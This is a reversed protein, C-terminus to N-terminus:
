AISFTPTSLTGPPACVVSARTRWIMSKPAVTTAEVGVYASRSAWSADVAQADVQRARRHRPQDEGSLGRARDRLRLRQDLLLPPRLREVGGPHGLDPRDHHELAGLLGAAGVDDLVVHDLLHEIRHRELGHGVALRPSRTTVENPRPRSGAAGSGSPRDPTGRAPRSTSTRARIQCRRPRCGRDRRRCSSRARCSRRGARSRPSRGRTGRPRRTGSAHDRM